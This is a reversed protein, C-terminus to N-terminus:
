ATLETQAPAATVPTHRIFWETAFLRERVDPPLGAIVGPLAGREVETRHALVAATKQKM